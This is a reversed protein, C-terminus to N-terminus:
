APPPILEPPPPPTLTLDVVVARHDSGLDPGVRRHDVRWRPSILVHDIPIMGTWWLGSPWTGRYGFGRASDRLGADRLLRRFPASWPTANLDGAVIIPEATDRVRRGVAEIQAARVASGAGGVPPMSHVGLVRVWQGALDLRLDIRPVQAADLEATVGDVRLGRRVLVAMGFNDERVTPTDLRLYGPLGADLEAVWAANVEEVVIVDADREALWRAVADRRTNGAYVNFVVLRLSPGSGTPQTGGWWLPGLLAANLGLAAAFVTASRWRRRWALLGCIPLLLAAYQLRFHSMLDLFWPRDGLLGLVSALSVAAGLLWAVEEWMAWGAARHRPDAAASADNASAKNLGADTM